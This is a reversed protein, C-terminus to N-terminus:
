FSSFLKDTKLEHNKIKYISIFTNFWITLKTYKLHGIVTLLKLKPMTTFCHLCQQFLVLGIYQVCTVIFCDGQFM